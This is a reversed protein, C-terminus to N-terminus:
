DELEPEELEPDHTVMSYTLLPNHPSSAPVHELENQLDGMRMSGQLDPSKEKLALIVQSAESLNTALEHRVLGDHLMFLGFGRKMATFKKRAVYINSVNTIELHAEYHPNQGNFDDIYRGFYHQMYVSNGVAQFALEYFIWDVAALHTANMAKNELGAEPPKVVKQLLARRDRVEKQSILMFRAWNIIRGDPQNVTGGVDLFSAETQMGPSVFEVHLDKIHQEAITLVSDNLGFLSLARLTGPTREEAFGTGSNSDLREGTRFSYIVGTEPDNM